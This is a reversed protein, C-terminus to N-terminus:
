YTKKDNKILWYNLDFKNYIGSDFFQNAKVINARAIDELSLQHRTALSSIYWLIDGIEESIEKKFTPYRNNILTKKFVSQLDGIESVLGLLSVIVRKKEDTKEVEVQYENLTLASPFNNQTPKKM